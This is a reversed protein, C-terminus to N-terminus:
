LRGRWSVSAGRGDPAPLLSVSSTDRTESGHRLLYVVPVTLWPLSGALLLAGFHTTSLMAKCRGEVDFDSCQTGSVLFVTGAIAAAGGVSGAVIAWAPVKHPTTEVPLLWPLSATLVLSGAGGVALPIYEFRELHRLTATYDDGHQKQDSYGLELGLQSAFLGWSVVTAVGGVAGLVIGLPSPPSAREDRADDRVPESVTTQPKSPATAVTSPRPTAPAEALKAAPSPAGSRSELKPAIAVAYVEGLAAPGEHTYDHRDGNRLDHAAGALAVEDVAGAPDIRLRAAAMLKGDQMRIRDVQVVDSSKGQADIIPLVLLVEAVGVTQGIELADAYAHSRQGEASDYRLAIDLSTQVAAEFRTDVRKVVRATGISVRHVRGARGEECEAQVRYEGPSLQALEYPTEGLHRGNIYVACGEPVSEVRLSGPERQRLEAEAEALIGIVEPPHMTGDPEIDPVLRKCELAQERARQRENSQLHARVLYLCADLLQRAALSERNLSELVKDARTLAREVDQRAKTPLGSAVHYLAMQADRALADLDGHSVMLPATSGRQEFRARAREAPLLRPTSAALARTLQQAARRATPVGEEEHAVSSPLLLWEGEQARARSCFADGGFVLAVALGYAALTRDFVSMVFDAADM